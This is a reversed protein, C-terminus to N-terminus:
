RLARAALEMLGAVGFAVCAPVIVGVLAVWPYTAGVLVAGGMGLLAGALAAVFGTAATAWGRGLRSSILACWLAVGPVLVLFGPPPPHDAGAWLVAILVVAATCGVVARTRVPVLVM